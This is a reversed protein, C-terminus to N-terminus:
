TGSNFPTVSVDGLDRFVFTLVFSTGPKIDAISIATRAITATVAVCDDRYTLRLNSAVSTLGSNLNQTQTVGASWTDTLNFNVGVSIQNAPTVSPIGPIASTAIYSVSGSLNAVGDAAGVEQRRMALDQSDLRARYFVSFQGGPTVSVRGVVDSRKHDLGSGVPFQSEGQLRYSEGILFSTSGAATNFVGGHLGYDVRQGGDIRDYGPFRNGVFLDSDDFEFSQADENPITSPNGGLPAVFAAAIPEILADIPGLSAVWPYRWQLAMQPFVRGETTSKPITSLGYAPSFDTNYGDGRLTASFQYRDGIPGNFPLRWDAGVSLRRMALSDRKSLNLMNGNFQWTGGLADPPTAFDYDAVPLVIPENAISTTPNLNQYGYASINGYSAPGLSGFNEAYVHDTLFNTTYPFHFRQLYTQDTTATGDFGARWSPTLDWVGDAAIHGRLTHIAANPDPAQPDFATSGYNLSTDTTLTGNGFRQRYQGDLITGGETMFIPRITADKDPGLVFYYPLGLRFGNSADNGIVPPLFGSARKVSPDPHSFYPSYFVPIGEIEMTADHYEVIQLEKDDVAQEAKIQWVPPRTPDAACLQCPSFVARRVETRTGAVRRATNGVLRSGDFLLMRADRIFGDHFNDHLEMYDAFVVDGTPQTMSVNGSATVTDTRQNYTVTDALLIQDDQSLEVHGKAVVLGLDQDYQLEDATVLMPPQQPNASGAQPQGPAAAAAGAKGAPTGTAPSAPPRASSPAAAPPASGPKSPQPNAQQAQAGLLLAWSAM